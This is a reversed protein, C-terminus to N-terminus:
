LTALHKALENPCSTTGGKSGRCAIGSLSKVVEDITMGKCLAAVGVTNGPCGGLFKIEQIRRTEDDYTISVERSCVGENKFNKTVIM